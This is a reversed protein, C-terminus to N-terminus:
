PPWKRRRAIVFSVKFLLMLFVFGFWALVLHMDSFM